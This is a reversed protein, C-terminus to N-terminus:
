TVGENKRSSSFSYWDPRRLHAWHAAEHQVAATNGLAPHHMTPHRSSLPSWGPRRLRACHTGTHRQLNPPHQAIIWARVAIWTPMSCHLFATSGKRESGGVVICRGAEDQSHEGKTHTAIAPDLACLLGVLAHGLQLATPPRRRRTTKGNNDSLADSHTGLARHAVAPAVVMSLGRQQAAGRQAPLMCCLSPSESSSLSGGSLLGAM